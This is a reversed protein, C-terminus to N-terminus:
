LTKTERRAPKETRCPLGAMEAHSLSGSQRGTLKEARAPFAEPMGDFKLAKFTQDLTPHNLMNQRERNIFYGAGRINPPPTQDSPRGHRATRPTQRDLGNKWIFEPIHSSNPLQTPPVTCLANDPSGCWFTKALRLVGHLNAYGQEPHKRKQM